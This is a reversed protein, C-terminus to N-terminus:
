IPICEVKLISSPYIPEPLLILLDISFCPKSFPLNQEPTYISITTNQISEIFVVETFGTDKTIKLRKAQTIKCEFDEVVGLPTGNKGKENTFVNLLYM